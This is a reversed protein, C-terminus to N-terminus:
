SSLIVAIMMMMMVMMMMMLIMVRLTSLATICNAIDKLFDHNNRARIGLGFNSTVHDLRGLALVHQVQM